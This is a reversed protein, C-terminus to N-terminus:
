QTAHNKKFVEILIKVVFEMPTYDDNHLLVKFLKPRQTEPKTLTALDGEGEREKQSM